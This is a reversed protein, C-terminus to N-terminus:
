KNYEKQLEDWRENHPKGCEGCFSHFGRFGRSSIEKKCVCTLNKRLTTKNGCKYCHKTGKPYGDGFYCGNSCQIQNDCNSIFFELLKLM